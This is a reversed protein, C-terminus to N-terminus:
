GGKQRMISFLNELAGQNLRNTLIFSIGYNKLKEEEFVWSEM